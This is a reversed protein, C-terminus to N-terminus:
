RILVALALLRSSFRIQEASAETLNVLIKTKDEKEIVCLTLNQQVYSPSNGATLVHRSRAIQAISPLEADLGDAALLVDAGRDIAASIESTGFPVKSAALPRNVVNVPLIGQLATMWENANAESAADGPRYIIAIEVSAGAREELSLEYSLVRALVAAHRAKTSGESAAILVLSLLAVLPLRRLRLPDRAFIRM